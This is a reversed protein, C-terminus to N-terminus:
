KMLGLPQRQVAQLTLTDRTRDFAFVCRRFFFYAQVQQDRRLRGWAYGAFVPTSARILPSGYGTENRNQRVSQWM